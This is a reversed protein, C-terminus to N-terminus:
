ELGRRVAGKGKIEEIVPGDFGTPQEADDVIPFPEMDARRLPQFLRFGIHM